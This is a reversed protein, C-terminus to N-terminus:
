GRSLAEMPSMKSARWAPYFGGLVSVIAIMLFILIVLNATISLPIPLEVAQVLVNVVGIALVIGLIGGVISITFAEKLVMSIVKRKKWGIARLIGIERTREMVSMIMTNMVVASGMIIGILAILFSIGQILQIDQQQAAVEPGVLTILQPFRNEVTSRIDSLQNLDEVYVSLMSVVNGIGFISQAENLPIVGGGDQFSTGTEYIGVIEFSSGHVYVTNGVDLGEGTSITRGIIIKGKDDPQLTRGNIISFQKIAQEDPNVGNIIVIPRDKLSTLSFTMASVSYVGNINEVANETAMDVRSMMLDPAHRDLILFDGAGTGLQQYETELGNAVMLLSTLLMVSIIISFITLGSRLKKRFVSKLTMGFIHDKINM